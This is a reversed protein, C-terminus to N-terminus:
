FEMEFLGLGGKGFYNGSYFILGRTESIKLISPFYIMDSDFEGENGFNLEDFVDDVREWDLLNKSRAAGLFYKMDKIIRRTYFCYYWDSFKIIQPRGLGHEYNFDTEIIKFGKDQMVIGDETKQYFIDYVPRQENGCEFWSSGASYVSHFGNKQDPYISQGARVFLGEEQRDLIPARTLRKFNEGGDNSIALGGFNYHRIKSGLQFGTYYLYITKSNLKYAHAPFVGNEDFCGDDGIDLVFKDSINLINTPKAIDLDVYTIRSIKSADWGGLFVRIKNGLIIATPAMAHSKWWSSDGSPSFIHGIKTTVRLM